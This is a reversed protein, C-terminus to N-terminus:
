RREWDFYTAFIRSRPLSVLLLIRSVGISTLALYEEESPKGKISGVKYRVITPLKTYRVMVRESIAYTTWTTLWNTAEGVVTWQTATRWIKHYRRLVTKWLRKSEDVKEKSNRAYESASWPLSGVSRLDTVPNQIKKPSERIEQFLLFCDITEWDDVSASYRTMADVVLSITQNRQNSASIPIEKEWGVGIYQSLWLEIWIAWLETKWSRVLCMSISQWRVRWWRLCPVM